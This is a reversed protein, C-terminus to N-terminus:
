KYVCYLIFSHYRSRCFWGAVKLIFDSIESLCATWWVWPSMPGHGMQRNYSLMASLDDKLCATIKILAEFVLFTEAAPGWSWRIHLESVVEPRLNRSLTLGRVGLDTHKGTDVEFFSQAFQFPSVGAM